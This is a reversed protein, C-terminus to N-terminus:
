RTDLISQPVGPTHPPLIPLLPRVDVHALWVDALELRPPVEHGHNREGEDRLKEWMQQYRPPATALSYDLFRM